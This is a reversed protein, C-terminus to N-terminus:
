SRKRFSGQSPNASCADIRTIHLTWHTMHLTRHTMHLTCNPQRTRKWDGVPALSGQLLPPTWHPLYARLCWPYSLTAGGGGKSSTYMGYIVTPAGQPSSVSRWTSGSHGAPPTHRTDSARGSTNSAAIVIVLLTSISTNPAECTALLSAHCEKGIIQWLILLSVEFHHWHLLAGLYTFAIFAFSSTTSIYICAIESCLCIYLLLAASSTKECVLDGNLSMPINM